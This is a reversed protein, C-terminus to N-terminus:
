RVVVVINSFAKLFNPYSLNINLYTNWRECKREISLNSDDYVLEGYVFSSWKDKEHLLEFKTLIYCNDRPSLKLERKWQPHFAIQIQYYELWTICNGFRTIIDNYPYFHGHADVVDNVYIIGALYAKSVIFPRNNRLLLSNYWLRQRLVDDVDVPMQFNYEAWAHLLQFWFSQPPASYIYKVHEPKFNCHWIEECIPSDFYNYFITNFFPIESIYKIWQIKLAKHRKVLDVLKLGGCNRPLTLVDMRMKARKGSWLFQHILKCFQDIFTLPIDPLVRM